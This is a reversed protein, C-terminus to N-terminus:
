ASERQFTRTAVYAATLKVWDEGMPNEPTGGETTAYGDLSVNLDVRVRM